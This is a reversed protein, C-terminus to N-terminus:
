AITGYETTITGNEGADLTITFIIREYEVTILYEEDTMASTLTCTNDEATVEEGNVFIKTVAYGYDPTVTFTATDGKKVQVTGDEAITGYDTTISGHGSGDVKVANVIKFVNMLEYPAVAKFAEVAAASPVYVIADPDIETGKHFADAATGALPPNESEFIYTRQVTSGAPLAFARGGIKSQLRSNAEGLSKPFILTDINACNEFSNEAIQYIKWTEPEPIRQIAIGSNKFLEKAYLDKSGDATGSRKNNLATLAINACGMFASSADGTIALNEPLETLVLSSCGNFAGAGLNSNMGAPLGNPFTLKTCSNFADGGIVNLSEPLELAELSKCRGFSKAGIATITAPFIVKKLKPVDVNLYAFAGGEISAYNNETYKGSSASWQLPSQIKNSVLLTESMDIEEVENFPTATNPVTAAKGGYCFVNRVGRLDYYSYPASGKLIVKKVYQGHTALTEGNGLAQFAADIAANINAFMAPSTYQTTLDLETNLEITLVIDEQAKATGTLALLAIFFSLVKSKM